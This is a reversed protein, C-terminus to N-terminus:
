FILVSSLYIIMISAGLISLWLEYHIPTRALALCSRAGGLVCRRLWPIIILLMSLYAGVRAIKLCNGAISHLLLIPSALTFRAQFFAATTEAIMRRVCDSLKAPSKQDHIRSTIHLHVKTGQRFRFRFPAIWNGTHSSRLWLKLLALKVQTSSAWANM